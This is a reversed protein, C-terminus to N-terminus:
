KGGSGGEKEGLTYKIRLGATVATIAKALRWAGRLHITGNKDACKWLITILTM